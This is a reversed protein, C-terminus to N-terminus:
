WSKRNLKNHSPYRSFLSVIPLELQVSSVALKIHGDIYSPCKTHELILQNEAGNAIETGDLVSWYCVESKLADPM